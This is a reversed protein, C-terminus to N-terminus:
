DDPQNNQCSMIPVWIHNAGDGSWRPWDTETKLVQVHDQSQSSRFRTDDFDFDFDFRFTIKHVWFSSSLTRGYSVAFRDQEDSKLGSTFTFM